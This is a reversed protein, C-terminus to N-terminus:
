YLSYAYNQKGKDPIMIAALLTLTHIVKACINFLKGIQYSKCRCLHQNPKVQIVYNPEKKEQMQIGFVLTDTLNFNKTKLSQEWKIAVIIERWFVIVFQRAVNPYFEHFLSSKKGALIEFCVFQRAVSFLVRSIAVIMESVLLRMYECQVFTRTRAM